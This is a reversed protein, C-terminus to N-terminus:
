KKRAGQTETSWDGLVEPKVRGGATGAAPASPTSSSARAPDSKGPLRPIAREARPDIRYNEPTLQFLDKFIGPALLGVPNVTVNPNALAGRISFPMGFMGEGKTGGLLVGLGPIGSVASNLGALPIYSGGLDVTQAKFDIKGRFPAGLLPGKIQADNMVFQGNGVLFPIRMVDFPILEQLPKKRNRSIAPQGTDANQMVDGVISDGLVAFNRAWLIGSKEASGRGDLNIELNMVGGIARPYFGVLKFIQGADQSEALFIRPKNAESQIVARFAKGREFQGNADLMVFRDGRSQSRLKVSKISTESFGIVTDIEVALDIGSHKPPASRVGSQGLSFLSRFIDRGDFTPGKARVEWINDSRLKGQIELRSITNVSFEPFFYERLRNDPGIAMFGEIAVEDGSFKINQLETRAAAGQGQGKAVDFQVIAARGPPKRWAVHELTVEAKSLDARVRIAPEGKAERSITMEVPVEGQVIDNIDLGLATRDANDLVSTLRAPPQRDAPSNLLFQATLRAAVGKLLIDGKVDIAKDNLDINVTGGSIDHTATLGRTRLDTIRVKGETRLESTQLNSGLPFRLRVGGDLKGDAVTASIGASKLLSLPERDILDAVGAMPGQVRVSIDANAQQEAVDTILVRGARLSLRRTEGTGISAEAAALDLTDGDFKLTARPIDIPPLGLTPIIELGGLDASVALSPAERASAQGGSPTAVNSFRFTGKTMQGKGVHATIWDRASPALSKPWASKLAAANFPAIRGSIDVSPSGQDGQTTKGRRDLDSIHGEATIEIGGHAFRMASIQVSHPDSAAFGQLTIRPLAGTTEAREVSGAAFRWGEGLGPASARRAEGEILFTMDAAAVISPKLVLRQAQGDYDVALEAKQVAIEGRAVDGLLLKGAGVVVRASGSRVAGRETLDFQVEASVPANLARLIAWQADAMALDRPVLGAVQFRVQLNQKQGSEVVNFAVDIPGTLALVSARGEIVTSARSHNLDLSLEPIRWLSKRQGNDVILTANKLGIERLYYAREDQRRARESAKALANIIVINGGDNPRAGADTTEADSSGEPRRGADAQPPTIQMSLSGDAAYFVKLRPRLLDIRELAFRFRRLARMSVAATAEPASAIATGDAELMQVNRLALEYGGNEAPRFEAAAIRVSKGGLEASVATEIQSLLATLAIPGHQLRVYVVTAVIAGLIGFVLVCLGLARAVALAARPRVPAETRKKRVTKPRSAAPAAGRATRATREDM